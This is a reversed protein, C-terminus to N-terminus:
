VGDLVRLAIGNNNLRVVLYQIRPNGKTSTKNPAVGRVNFPPQGITMPASLPGVKASASIPGCASRQWSGSPAVSMSIPTLASAPVGLTIICRSLGFPADVTSRVDDAKAVPDLPANAQELVLAVVESLPVVVQAAVNCFVERDLPSIMLVFVPAVALM